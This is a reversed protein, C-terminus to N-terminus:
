AHKQAKLYEKQEHKGEGNGEDGQDKAFGSAAVFFLSTIALAVIRRPTTPHLFRTMTSDMLNSILEDALKVCGSIPTQLVHGCTVAGSSEVQEPCPIVPM